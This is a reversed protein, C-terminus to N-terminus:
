LKINNIHVRYRVGDGDLIDYSYGSDYEKVVEVPGKYVPGLKGSREPIRVYVKDGVSLKVYKKNQNERRLMDEVKKDRVKQVQEYMEERMCGSMVGSNLVGVVDVPCVEGCVVEYPTFGVTSHITTNLSREIKNVYKDWCGGKEQLMCRMCNEIQLNFREVLGNSAHYYPACFYAEVHYRQCLEKFSRCNFEKGMDVVVSEPTRGKMMLEEEVVKSVTEADKRKLARIFSWHSYSDIGVLLYKHGRFSRKFPGVIDLHVRQFSRTVRPYRGVTTRGVHSPKSVKCVHCESVRKAVDRDMGKWYVYRKLREGSM